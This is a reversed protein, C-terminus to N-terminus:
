AHDGKVLRVFVDELSENDRVINHISDKVIIRGNNMIAASDCTKEVESLLHSNLVITIGKQRLSEIILRFERMGIPDLGTVPEDLILLKPNGIIAGALGIRQIMGKSYTAAKQREKGAMGVTELVTGIERKIDAAAVGALEAQRTLYEFGSLIGPIKHQEALYGVRTRAAPDRSSKGDISVSGSSPRSFGMLMRVITTKGAGNPGLLAFAEGQKVSYSVSDVATLSGYKKTVSELSIM